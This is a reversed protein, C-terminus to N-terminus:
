VSARSHAREPTKRSCVDVVLKGEVEHRISNLVCMLTVLLLLMLMLLTAGLTMLRNAVREPAISM